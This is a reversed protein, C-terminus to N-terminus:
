FFLFYLGTGNIQKGYIWFVWDCLNLQFLASLSKVDLYPRVEKSLCMVKKNGFYFLNHGHWASFFVINCQVHSLSNVTPQVGMDPDWELIKHSDHNNCSFWSESVRQFCHSLLLGLFAHQITFPVLSTCFDCTFCFSFKLIYTIKINFAWPAIIQTSFAIRTHQHFM